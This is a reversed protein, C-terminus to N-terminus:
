RTKAFFRRVQLRGCGPETLPRGQEDVLRIQTSKMPQGLPVPEDDVDPRVQATSRTAWSTTMLNQPHEETQRTPVLTGVNEM